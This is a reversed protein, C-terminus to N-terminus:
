KPEKEIFQLVQFDSKSEFNNLQYIHGPRIAMSNGRFLEMAQIRDVYDEVSENELRHPVDKM